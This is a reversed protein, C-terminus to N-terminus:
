PPKFINLIVTMPAAMNYAKHRWVAWTLYTFGFKLPNKLIM